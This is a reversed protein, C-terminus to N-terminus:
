HCKAKGHKRKWRRIFELPTLYALSQHPRICNCTREWLRLKRNLIVGLFGARDRDPVAGEIGRRRANGKRRTGFRKPVKQGRITKVAMPEEVGRFEIRNVCSPIGRTYEIAEIPLWAVGRRKVQVERGGVGPELNRICVVLLGRRLVLPLVHRAEINPQCEGAHKTGREQKSRVTPNALIAYLIKRRRIENGILWGGQGLGAPQCARPHATIQRIRAPPVGHFATNLKLSCREGLEERRPQGIGSKIEGQTSAFPTGTGFGESMSGLWHVSIPYACFV